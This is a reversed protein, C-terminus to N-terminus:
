SGARIKVTGNATEINLTSGGAGVTGTLTRKSKQQDTMPVDTVIRGRGSECNLYTSTDAGLRIDVSGNHTTMSGGIAGSKTLDATLSGNHTTVDITEGGFTVNIGGNHTEGHLDLGGCEVDIAGNHTVARVDGGTSEIVIAGNHTELNVRGSVESVRTEGNHTVAKVNGEIVTAKVPGNHTEIDLNIGPLAVVDFAVKSKWDAKKEESWRWGIKITDGDREAFVEIAKFAKAAEKAGNAGAKITATVTPKAEKDGRFTVSGNHTRVEMSAAGDADLSLKRTTEKTWSTQGFLGGFATYAALSGLLLAGCLALRALPNKNTM